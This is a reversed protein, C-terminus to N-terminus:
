NNLLFIYNLSIHNMNQLYSYKSIEIPNDDKSIVLVEASSNTIIYSLCDALKDKSLYTHRPTASTQTGYDTWFEDTECWDNEGSKIQLQM